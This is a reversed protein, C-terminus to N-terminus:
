SSSPEPFLLRRIKTMGMEDGAKTGALAKDVWGATYGGGFDTIWANNDLDILVNEAKVDGWIIGASHLRGLMTDLQRMWTRRVTMPPDDPDDPHVRMSLPCDLNVHSLLIRLIFGCEDMVVGYMRCINNPQSDYLGSAAIAEYAELEHKAQVSSHCPKYFCEIKDNKILVKRPQKFLADEPNEFSLTIGVPDYLLTWLELRDLFEDDFRCFSPRFPAAEGFVRNPCIKEDVIEFNFVFVEPFLHEQLTIRIDKLDGPPPPALEALLTKFPDMVWEYVDSDYIDGVFEEGSRLVALYALYKETMLPSNIFYSPSIRIDFVKGNRRVKFSAEHDDEDISTSHYEIEYRPISKM